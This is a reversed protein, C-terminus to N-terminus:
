RKAVVITKDEIRYTLGNERVISDLAEDWPVNQWNISVKGQVADDLRMQMGTIQGFTNLVDRLDANNLAINIPEGTYKKANAQPGTDSGPILQVTMKQEPTGPKEITLDVEIKDDKAPRAALTIRTGDSASSTVTGRQSADLILTLDAIVTHTANESVSGTLETKAGDRTASIRVSYPDDTKDDALALPLSGALGSALTFLALAAATLLATRFPSPSKAKLAPYRTM